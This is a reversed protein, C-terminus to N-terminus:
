VDKWAHTVILAGQIERFNSVKIETRNRCIAINSNLKNSELRQALSARFKEKSAQKSHLNGHIERFIFPVMKLLHVYGARPLFKDKTTM